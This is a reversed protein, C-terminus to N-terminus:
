LMHNLPSEPDLRGSFSYTHASTPADRHGTCWWEAGNTKEREKVCFPCPPDIQPLGDMASFDKPRVVLVPCPALRMTHEAVSGMMFRRFGRTGHSGVIVLDARIETALGAIQGAISGLRVHVTPSLTKVGAHESRFRDLARATEKTLRDRVGDAMATVTQHHDVARFLHLTSDDIVSMVHLEANDNRRSEAFAYELARSASESFDFGVLIRFPTAM